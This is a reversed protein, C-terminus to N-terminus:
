YFISFLFLTILGLIMAFGFFKGILISSRRIPKSLLLYITRGEIERYLMGGGLFLVVFFGTLEIFSLGFDYLMREIEGLALTRLLLSILLFVVGFFVILSFFKNRIIERFTNLAINWM